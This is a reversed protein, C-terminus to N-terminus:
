GGLPVALWRIQIDPPDASAVARVNCFRVPVVGATDVSGVDTVIGAPFAYGAAPRMIVYDGVDVGGMGIDYENCTHAAISPLGIGAGSSTSKKVFGTSNVGDLLNADAAKGGTKLFATSDNGDLLSADLGSGDGDVTLLKSLVQPPTDPSGSTGAPGQLGQPGPAGQPGPVGQPGPDGQPGAPGTPGAPGAPGAPGTEGQPGAPGAPGQPGVPGATGSQPAQLTGLTITVARETRKCKAKGSLVRFQGAKSGSKVVCAASPAAATQAASVGPPAVLLLAAAAGGALTRSFPPTIRM